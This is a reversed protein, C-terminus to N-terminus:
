ETLQIVGFVDPVRNYLRDSVFPVTLSVCCEDGLDFKVHSTTSLDFNHDCGLPVFGIAVRGQHFKTAVFQFRFQISGRWFKACLAVFGMPTLQAYERYATEGDIRGALVPVVPYACIM